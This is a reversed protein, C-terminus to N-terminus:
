AAARRDALQRIELRVQELQEALSEIGQTRLRVLEDVTERGVDEIGKLAEIQRDQLKSQIEGLGANVEKFVDQFESGSAGYQRAAGITSQGVGTIQQLAAVDGERAQGLLTRFQDLGGSVTATPAAIGQSIGFPGLAQNIPALLSDFLGTLSRVQSRYQDETASAQADATKQLTDLQDQYAAELDGTGRGLDNAAQELDKFKDTLADFATLFQNNTTFDRIQREVNDIITQRQRDYAESLGDTTLGLANAKQTMATFQDDVDALATAVPGLNQRVRDLTEAFQLDSALEATSNAKTNQFVLQQNESLGTSAGGVLKFVANLLDAQSGFTEGNLQLGTKNGASFRLNINDVTGGLQGIAEVLSDVQSAFSNVVQRNEPSSSKDQWSTGVSTWYDLAARDNGLNQEGGGFLGGVTGGLLSGIGAGAIGGVGPLLANGILFGAGGGLVGGISSGVMNGGTAATITNGATLGLAGAGLAATGPNAQAWQQVGAGFGQGSAISQNLSQSLGAVGQQLPMSVVTGLTQSVIGRVGQSLSTALSDISVKGTELFQEFMDGTIKAVEAALQRWPEALIDAMEKAKQEALRNAEDQAKDQEKFYQDLQRLEFDLDDKKKQQAEKEAKDQEQYYVDLQRLEFDLNAKAARERDAKEKAAAAERKRQREEYLADVAKDDRPVPVPADTAIVYAQAADVATQSKGGGLAATGVRAEQVKKAIQQQKAIDLLENTLQQNQETKQLDLGAILRTVQDVDGANAAAVLRNIDQEIRAGSAAIAAQAGREFEQPSSPQAPLKAQEEALYRPRLSAALDAAKSKASKDLEASTGAAQQKALDRQADSLRGFATTAEDVQKTLSEFFSVLDAGQKPTEAAKEGFIGLAGATAILAAGAAGIISGVPGFASAIQPGQQALVRFGDTGGQLQVIIDQVQAAVNGLAAKTANSFGTAQEGTRELARGADQARRTMLEFSINAQDGLGKLAASAQSNDVIVRASVTKEAVRAARTGSACSRRLM